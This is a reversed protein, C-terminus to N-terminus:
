VINTALFLGDENLHPDHSVVHGDGTTFSEAEYPMFEPPQEEGYHPYMVEGGDTLSSGAEHFPPPPAQTAAYQVPPNSALPTYPNDLKSM